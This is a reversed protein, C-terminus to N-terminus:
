EVLETLEQAGIRAPSHSDHEQFVVVGIRWEDLYSVLVNMHRTIVEVRGELVHFVVTCPIAILLGYMTSLFSEWIALFFDSQATQGGAMRDPNFRWIMFYFTGLLGLLTGVQALMALWRLRAELDGLILLAERRLAHDRVDAPDERHQLHVRAIRTFPGRRRCYDVAAQWNGSAILSELKKLVPDFRQHHWAMVIVRELIVAVAFVSTILLPWMVPGGHGFM